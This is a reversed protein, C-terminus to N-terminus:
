ISDSNRFEADVRECRSLLGLFAARLLRSVRLINVRRISPGRGPIRATKAMARPITTRANPAALNRTRLPTGAGPRWPAVALFEPDDPRAEPSGFAVIEGLSGVRPKSGRFSRSIM